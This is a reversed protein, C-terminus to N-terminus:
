ALGDARRAKHFRRAAIHCPIYGLALAPAGFAIPALPAVEGALAQGVLILTFPFALALAQFGALALLRAEARLHSGELSGYGSM